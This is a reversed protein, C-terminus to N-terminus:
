DFSIKRTVAESDLVGLSRSGSTVGVSHLYICDSKLLKGRLFMRLAHSLPSAELAPLNAMIGSVAPSFCVYCRLGRVQRLLDKM